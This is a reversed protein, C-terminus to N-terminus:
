AHLCTISCSGSGSGRWCSRHALRRPDEGSHRCQEVQLGSPSIWVRGVEGCSMGAREGIPSHGEFRDTSFGVGHPGPHLAHAVERGPVLRDSRNSAFSGSTDESLRDRDSGGGQLAESAPRDRDAVQLRVLAHDDLVQRDGDERERCSRDLRIAWAGAQSDPHQRGSRQVDPVGYRPKLPHGRIRFRISAM